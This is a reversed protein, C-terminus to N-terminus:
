DNEIRMEHHVLFFLVTRHVIHCDIFAELIDGFDEGGAEDVKMQKSRLLTLIYKAELILVTRVATCRYYDCTIKVDSYKM